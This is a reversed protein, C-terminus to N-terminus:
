VVLDQPALERIYKDIDAIDKESTCKFTYPGRVQLKSALTESQGSEADCNHTFVVYNSQHRDSFDRNTYKTSNYIIGDFM